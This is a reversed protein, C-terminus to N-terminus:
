RANNPYLTSILHFVEGIPVTKKMSEHIFKDFFVAPKSSCAAIFLLSLDSVTFIRNM